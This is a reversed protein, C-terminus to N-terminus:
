QLRDDADAFRESLAFPPDGVPHDRSLHLSNEGSERPAVHRRDNDGIFWYPRYPRPLGCGGRLCLLYMLEDPLQYGLHMVPGQSFLRDYLVAPAHLRVVGGLKQGLHRSLRAVQQVHAAPRAPVRM